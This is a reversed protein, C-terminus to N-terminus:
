TLLYLLALLVSMNEESDMLLIILLLILTKENDGMLAGLGGVSPKEAPPAPKEPPRKERETEVRARTNGRMQSARRLADRTIPDIEPM